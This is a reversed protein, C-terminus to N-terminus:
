FKQEAAKVAALNFQHQPRTHWALFRRTFRKMLDFGRGRWGFGRAGVAGATGQLWRMQGIERGMQRLSAELSNVGEAPVHPAAEDPL